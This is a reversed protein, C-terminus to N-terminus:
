VYFSFLMKFIKYTEVLGFDNYEGNVKGDLSGSEGERVDNYRINSEWINKIGPGNKKPVM